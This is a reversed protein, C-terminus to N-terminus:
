KVTCSGSGLLQLAGKAQVIGFGYVNDRGAAGKDRATSDLADRLEQATLEPHCSWVLAAVASVHPTAMSTGDWSEYGSDPALFASSVTGVNGAKTLAAAGDDCSLAIAPINTTVRHDGLTGLFVGCTSDSAVNNYIAAAVGGGAQVNKVKDAFTIDGRQCLVVMGSWAGSSTCLGGDVLAGSASGRATGTMRGGPWSQRGSELVNSDLYPVTSLVSVGPAALEVDRNRQSFSAAQENADVAAVSVVSAYGAPYSTGNNGANGAAAISLVGNNAYADAFAKDETRSRASGGLSMSVVKSGAAVCSNLASVLTSSYTWGCAGNEVLDDNGFVKVIHLSTDPNAGVVGTRNELAAVTGAVHTGHGCSDKNWTGSGSDTQKATLDTGTFDRLDAHQDSYGSDIVCLRVDAANPSSVLDAQVMQIGYPLIESGQGPVNSWTAYPERIVDEEIYEINPNRSLGALAAAPIGAAVANQPGLTLVVQAGAARMAAQGAPGRGDRFKVIYRAQQASSQTALVLALVVTALFVRAVAKM